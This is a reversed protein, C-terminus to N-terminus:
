LPLALFVCNSKKISTSSAILVISAEFPGTLYICVYMCVYM